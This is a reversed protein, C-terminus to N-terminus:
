PKSVLEVICNIFDSISVLVGLAFLLWLSPKFWHVLPLIATFSGKDSRYSLYLDVATASLLRDSPAIATVRGKIKYALVGTFLVGTFLFEPSNSSTATSGNVVPLWGSTVITGAIWTGRQM